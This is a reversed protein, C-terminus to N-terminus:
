KNGLCFHSIFCNGSKCEKADKVQQAPWSDQNSVLAFASSKSDQYKEVGQFTKDSSIMTRQDVQSNNVVDQDADLKSEPLSMGSLDLTTKQSGTECKIAGVAGPNRPNLSPVVVPDSASSYVGSDGQEFSAGSAVMLTPVSDSSPTLAQLQEVAVTPFSIRKGSISKDVSLKSNSETWGGSPPSSPGNTSFNLFGCMVKYFLHVQPCSIFFSAVLINFHIYAFSSVEIASFYEKCQPMLHHVTQSFLCQVIPVERWKISVELKADLDPM